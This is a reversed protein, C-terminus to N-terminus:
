ACAATMAPPDNGFTREAELIKSGVAARPSFRTLLKAVGEQKGFTPLVKPALKSLQCSALDTVNENTVGVVPAPDDTKRKTLVQEALNALRIQYKLCDMNEVQRKLTEKMRAEKQGCWWEYAKYAGYLLGAGAVIAMAVPNALFPVAFPLFIATGKVCILRAIFAGTTIGNLFQIFAAIKSPSAPTDHVFFNADNIEPLQINLQANKKDDRLEQKLTEIRKLQEKYMKELTNVEAASEKMVEKLEIPEKETQDQYGIVAKYIGRCVSIAILGVGGILNVLPVTTSAIGYVYWLLDTVIWAGYEVGVWSGTMESFGTMFAKKGASQHLSKIQARLTESYKDAADLKGKFAAYDATEKEEAVKLERLLSQRALDYSKRLAARRMLSSADNRACEDRKKAREIEKPDTVDKPTKFDEKDGKFGFYDLMKKLPYTLGIPFAIECMLSVALTNGFGLFLGSGMWLVWYVFSSIGLTVMAPGIIKKNLWSNKFWMFPLAYGSKAWSEKLSEWQRRYWPATLVEEKKEDEKKFDFVLQDHGSADKEVRISDYKKNLEKDEALLDKLYQNLHENNEDVWIKKAEDDLEFLNKLSEMEPDAGTPTPHLKGHIFRYSEANKAEKQKNFENYLQWGASFAVVSLVAMTALWNGHTFDIGFGNTTDDHPIDHEFLDPYRALFTLWLDMPMMTKLMLGKIDDAAFSRVFSRGDPSLTLRVTSM